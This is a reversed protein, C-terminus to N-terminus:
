DAQQESTGKFTTLKYSVPGNAYPLEVTFRNGAYLRKAGLDTKCEEGNPQCQSIDAVLAYSNGENVFTLTRGERKVLLKEVPNDPHILALVQYAVVVRVAMGADNEQLPPLVPTFNIRYVQEQSGQDLNVLRVLKRGGGPIALKAPSAVFSIEEQDTVPIRQEQETGPNTVKLVEVQVYATDTGQNSVAVDQRPPENAPFDVISKDLLIGAQTSAAGLYFLLSLLLQSLAQRSMIM